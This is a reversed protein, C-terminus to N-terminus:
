CKIEVLNFTEFQFHNTEKGHSHQKRESSGVGTVGITRTEGFGGQLIKHIGIDERGVVIGTHHLDRVTTRRM